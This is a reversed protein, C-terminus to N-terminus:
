TVFGTQFYESSGSVDTLMKALLGGTCSEATTVTKKSAALMKGVVQQLPQDDEGFILEGLKEYCAHVTQDLQRQAQERSDFRSNVRLSVIGQAVTTGVSPNKARMMLDGLKE